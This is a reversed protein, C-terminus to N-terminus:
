SLRTRWIDPRSDSSTSVDLSIRSATLDALVSTLSSLASTVAILVSKPASFALTVAIFASAVVIPRSTLESCVSIPAIRLSTTSKREVRAVYWMSLM